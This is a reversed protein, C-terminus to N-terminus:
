GGAKPLKVRFTTRVQVAHIRVYPIQVHNIECELSYCFLSTARLVFAQITSSMFQAGGKGQQENLLGTKVEKLRLNM